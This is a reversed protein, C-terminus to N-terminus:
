MKKEKEVLILKESIKLLLDTILIKKNANIEVHQIAENFYKYYIQGVSPNIYNQFNLINKKEEPSYKLINDLGYNWMICKRVFSITYRFFDKLRERGFDDIMEIFSTLQSFDFKSSQKSLLYALRMLQLLIELNENENDEDINYNFATILNNESHFAIKRATETDYKKNKILVDMLDSNSLKNVKVLQSRSLITDLIKEQKDTLLLFLTKGDPEELTKLLRSAGDQRLKDAMWIIFVKYESEYPKLSAKYLIDKVDNMNIIIQKKEVNIKECWDQEDFLANTELLLERWESYFEASTSDSKGDKGNPFYFHLDPHALHQYQVCSNCKGCSDKETRNHCNIYQAYAIALALLHTGEVGLFLQTHSVRYNKVTLRLKNKIDDSVYVDSFLM